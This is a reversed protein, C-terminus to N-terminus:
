CTATPVYLANCQVKALPFRGALEDGYQWHTTCRRGDLLGAEGLVFAGSCVSLVYAGRDSARRLADLVTEPM